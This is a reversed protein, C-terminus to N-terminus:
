LAMAAQAFARKGAVARELDLLARKRELGGAYGTLAGGAGIVRHCPIVISIPNRGVAAAVARVASSAGLRRALEGYSITDGSPITRLAEWVRSQFPTGAPALAFDFRVPQKAFYMRLQEAATRFVGLQPNEIWDAGPHAQYKQGIFYLGTLSTRDSTLLMAGLPSDITCFSKM